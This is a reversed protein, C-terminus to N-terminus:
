IGYIKRGIVALDLDERINGIITSESIPPLNGSRHENLILAFEQPTLVIASINQLRNEKAVYFRHNGDPIALSLIPSVPRSLACVLIPHQRFFDVGQERVAVQVARYRSKSLEQKSQTPELITTPLETKFGCERAVKSLDVGKIYKGYSIPVRQPLEFATNQKTININPAEIM